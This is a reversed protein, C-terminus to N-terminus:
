PVFEAARRHFRWGGDDSHLVDHYRGVLQVTWGDAGKLLFVVDSTATAEHDNWDTVLTNLVLHRQPRRPEIRAYAERLADHGEHVGLGPIDVSGDGCFTSVLDDTRGDDLALTYAAIAAGVGAVVEAYTTGM